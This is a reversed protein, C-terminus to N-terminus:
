SKVRNGNQYFRPKVDDRAREAEGATEDRLAQQSVPTADFGQGVVRLSKACFRNLDLDRRQLEGIARRQHLAKAARLHQVVSVPDAEPPGAEVETLHNGVRPKKKPGRSFGPHALYDV